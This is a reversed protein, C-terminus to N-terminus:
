VRGNEEHIAAAVMHSIRIPEPTRGRVTCRRIIDDAGQPSIGKGRVYCMGDPLKLPRPEFRTIHSLKEEWNKFNNKLAETIENTNPAKDSATIIPLGTLHNLLEMDLVNFGGLCAGDSIICRVQTGYKSDKLLESIREASDDGDTTIHGTIIGEIYGDMRYVTLVLLTRESDRNFPGDDVGIIRAEKKIPRDVM